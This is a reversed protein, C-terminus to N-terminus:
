KVNKDTLNKFAEGLENMDHNYEVKFSDWKEQREDNYNDMRSILDNNKQELEALKKENRIKTEVKENAIHAKFENIQIENLRIKEASATRFIEISDQLAKNLNHNAEIVNENAEEVKENADEVKSTSSKCGTFMLGMIIVSIVLTFIPKKM